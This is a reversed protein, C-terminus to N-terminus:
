DTLVSIATVVVAVPAIAAVLVADVPVSVILWGWREPELWPREAPLAVEQLVRGDPHLVAVGTASGPRQGDSRVALVRSCQEPSPGPPRMVGNRLEEYYPEGAGFVFPADSVRELHGAALACAGTPDVEIRGSRTVARLSMNALGNAFGDGGSRHTNYRGEWRVHDSAPSFKLSSMPSPTTLQMFADPTFCGTFSLICAAFWTRM